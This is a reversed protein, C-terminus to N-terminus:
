GFLQCAIIRGTIDNHNKADEYVAEEIEKCVAAELFRNVRSRRVAVLLGM